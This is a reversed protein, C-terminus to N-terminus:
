KGGFNTHSAHSVGHTSQIEGTTSTKAAGTLILTAASSYKKLNEDDKNEGLPFREGLHKRWLGSAKMQNPELIAKEADAIFNTLYNKIASKKDESYSEFLDDYPAAPVECKFDKDLSAKIAKLTKLLAVDNRTDKVQNNAALISMALGSPMKERVKDGWAKLYKVISVLQANDKKMGKFWEVVGKPDSEQFDSSRVALHPAEDVNHIDDMYYVPLDIHYGAKYTVRICKNKRVPTSDTIGNVANFVWDQLTACVVDPNPSIYVGDDIDCDDDKTRITTGMKYSGQIYFSPKYDPHNNKFYEKIRERLVSRSTMMANLKTETIELQKGFAIFLDHCNAM